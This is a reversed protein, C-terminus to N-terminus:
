PAIPETMRYFRAANLVIPALSPIAANARIRRFVAPTAIARFDFPSGTKERVNRLIGLLERAIFEPRRATVAPDLALASGANPYERALQVLALQWDTASNSRALRCPLDSKRYPLAPSYVGAIGLSSYQAAKTDACFFLVRM